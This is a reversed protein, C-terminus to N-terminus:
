VGPGSVTAARARGVRGESGSGSGLTPSPRGMGLELGAESMRRGMSIDGMGVDPDPSGEALADLGGISLSASSVSGSLAQTRARVRGEPIHLGMLPMAPSFAHGGPSGPGFVPPNRSLPSSPPLAPSMPPALGPSLMGTGLLEFTNTNAGTASPSPYPSRLPHMSATAPFRYTNTAPGSASPSPYPSRLGQMSTSSLAHGHVSSLSSSSSSTVLPVGPSPPEVWGRLPSVGISMGANTNANTAGMLMGGGEDVDMGMGVGDVDMGMGEAYGQGNDHPAAYRLAAAAPLFGGELTGRREHEYGGQGFVGMSVSASRTRGGSAQRQGQGSAFQQQQQQMGAASGPSGVGGFQAPSGGFQSRASSAYSSNSSNSNSNSMSRAHGHAHRHLGTLSSRRSHVASLHPSHLSMHGVSFAARNPSYPQPHALGAYQHHQSHPSPSYPHPSYANANASDAGAGPYAQQQPTRFLPFSGSVASSPQYRRLGFPLSVGPLFTVGAREIATPVRRIAPVLRGSGCLAYRARSGPRISREALPRFLLLLSRIRMGGIYAFGLRLLASDSLAVFTLPAGVFAFHVPVARGRERARLRAGPVSGMSAVLDSSGGSRRAAAGKVGRRERGGGEGAGFREWELVGGIWFFRFLLLYFWERAVCVRGVRGKSNNTYTRPAFSRFRARSPAPPDACFFLLLSHHNTPTKFPLLLLPQHLSLSLLADLALTLLPPPSGLCIRTARLCALAAGEVSVGGREPLSAAVWGFVGRAAGSRSSFSALSRPSGGAGSRSEAHLRAGRGRLYVGRGRRAYAEGIARSSRIAAREGGHRDGGSSAVR